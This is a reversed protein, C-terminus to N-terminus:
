SEGNALGSSQANFLTIFGAVVKVLYAPDGDFSKRITASVSYRKETTTPTAFIVHEFFMNHRDFPEVKKQTNDTPNRFRLTFVETASSLKYVSGFNDQNVRTLVKAISDITITLTNAFM